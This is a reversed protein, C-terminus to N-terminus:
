RRRDGKKGEVYSPHARAPAAPVGVRHGASGARQRRRKLAAAPEQRRGDHMAVLAKEFMEQRNIREEIHAGNEASPRGREAERERDSAKGVEHGWMALCVHYPRVLQGDPLAVEATMGQIAARFVMDKELAALRGPNQGALERLAAVLEAGRNKEAAEHVKDEVSAQETGREILRYVIRQNDDPLRDIFDDKLKTHALLRVRMAQGPKGPRALLWARMAKYVGGDVQLKLKERMDETAWSPMKGGPPPPVEDATRAQVCQQYLREVPDLKDLVAKAQTGDLLMALQGVAASDAWVLDRAPDGAM